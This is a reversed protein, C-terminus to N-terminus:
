QAAAPQQYTGSGPSGVGLDANTFNVIESKEIASLGDLADPDSLTLLNQLTTQVQNPDNNQAVFHMFIM